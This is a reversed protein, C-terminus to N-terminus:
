YAGIYFERPLRGPVTRWDGTTGFAMQKTYAPITALVAECGEESPNGDPDNKCGVTPDYRRISIALENIRGVIPSRDTGAFKFRSKLCRLALSQTSPDCM